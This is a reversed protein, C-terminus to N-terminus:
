EKPLMELFEDETKIPVGLQEAKALKSGAGPGAVLLTTNKSVSGAAKGGLKMVLEEAEERSMRELKGTFVVTQGAFLDGTPAEAEVPSVGLELLRNLLTQNEEEEFWTELESATIPGVDGVALFEEYHAQRLADLTRFERALDKAGREGVHRIGLAFLFRDLPRTKSAEIADLLNQVSQEGMRELALLDDRREQLRYISPIDTLYGLELFRDIQKEGLGEIDMAGRSVFHRLKASVQAPCAKNPCKLAVQGETRVLATGCEPCSTPEEPVPPEGERKDLVPGVVEPIVDGARQIIVVDGPRVDKRRLDEYNHLTARTVTAGGVFVPDLDAVPTITGTRGVQNIISVLRTFAQEAPYKYAIAWRPGRATSGLDDQQDLRNVKVVIGDIGFPLEPRRHEWYNIFACVEDIGQLISTEKRVAVGLEKLRALIEGQTSAGLLDPGLARGQENVAAGIGFAYFNLKRQATVRSALQRLSGAAANRPNAYVQEGREGRELNMQTFVDKFMIVEGRVEILGPLDHQLRLPIGRVTKANATVVEGTTGDGRTSAVTLVANEYTLSMSLGDFKLEVYYEVPESQGLGRRVREDFARLEEESFANDLSLMPQRHRHQDFEKVPPAGVRATPSDPTKLDPHISEIEVLERFLKDYDSDGIEPADLVYYLYNHREIQRRLEEARKALDM